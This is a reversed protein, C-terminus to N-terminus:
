LLALLKFKFEIKEDFLKMLKNKLKPMLLSTIIIEKGSNLKIICYSYEGFSYVGSGAGYSSFLQLGKIDAFSIDIEEGKIAYNITKKVENIEIILDKKKCFYNLHVWITPFIQILFAFLFLWYFLPTPISFGFYYIYLIFLVIDTIILHSLMRVHDIVRIEFKM